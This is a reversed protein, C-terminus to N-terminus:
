FQIAAARVATVLDATADQKITSAKITSAKITSAKITSAKIVEARTEVGSRPKPEIRSVEVGPGEPVTQKNVLGPAKVGEEQMLTEFEEDMDFDMDEQLPGSLVSTLESSQRMQEDLQSMVDEADKVGTGVGAQKLATSSAQLTRMLERDLEMSRLAEIQAAVLAVNNRLKELRRLKRRRERLMTLAGATDGQQRKKLAERGIWRCTEAMEAEQTELSARCEELSEQVTEDGQQAPRVGVAKRTMLWMSAFTELLCDM